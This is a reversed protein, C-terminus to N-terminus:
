PHSVLLAGRDSSFAGVMLALVQATMTPWVLAILGIAISTAGSAISITKREPFVIM